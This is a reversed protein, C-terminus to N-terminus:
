VFRCMRPIRNAVYFFTSLLVTRLHSVKPSSPYVVCHCASHDDCHLSSSAVSAALSCSLLPNNRLFSLDSITNRHLCIPKKLSPLCTTLDFVSSRGGRRETKCSFSSLLAMCTSSLPARICPRAPLWIALFCVARAWPCAVDFFTSRQKRNNLLFFVFPPFTEGGRKM